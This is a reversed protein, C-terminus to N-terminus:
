HARLLVFISKIKDSDLLLFNCSMWGKVYKFHAQQNVLKKSEDDSTVCLYFWTDDM